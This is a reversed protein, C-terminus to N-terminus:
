GKEWPSEWRGDAIQWALGDQKGPTRIIRQAYQNVGSDDHIQEAYEKQADDYGRCITIATLENGGIRRNLIETRGAKSDFHWKGNVKVIPVPLPWDEDGVSIIARNPNQSDLAVDMKEQAMTAFNARSNKDQVDDSTEVFDKGDPGFIQLLTAVDDNKIALIMADAAQQPTDFTTQQPQSAASTSTKAQPLARLPTAVICCAAIGLVTGLIKISLPKAKTSKMSKGKNTLQIM